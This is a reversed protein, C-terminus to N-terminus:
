YEPKKYLRNFNPKIETAYIKEMWENEPVEKIDVSIYKEPKNAQEHIIKTIEQAIKVKKEEPLGPYLNIVIHPM